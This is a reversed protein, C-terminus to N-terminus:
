KGMEKPVCLVWDPCAAGCRTLYALIHDPNLGGLGAGLLPLAVRERGYHQCLWDVGSEILGMESPRRWDRKTPICFLRNPAAFPVEPHSGQLWKGYAAPLGPFRDAAQKALGAGMVATGDRRTTTNTPIVVSFGNEHFTWIDDTWLQM